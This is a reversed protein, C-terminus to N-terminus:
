EQCAVRAWPIFIIYKIPAGTNRHLFGLLADNSLTYIFEYIIDSIPFLKCWMKNCHQTNYSHFMVIMEYRHYNM